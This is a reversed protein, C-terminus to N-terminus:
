MLIDYYAADVALAAIIYAFPTFRTRSRSAKLLCLTLLIKFWSVWSVHSYVPWGFYMSAVSPIYALGLFIPRVELPRTHYLANFLGMAIYFLYLTEEDTHKAQVLRVIRIVLFPFNSVVNLFEKDPLRKHPSGFQLLM